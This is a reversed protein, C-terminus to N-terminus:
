RQPPDFCCRFGIHTNRTLRNISEQATCQLESEGSLYSGGFVVWDNGDTAMETVNGSLDFFDSGGHSLFCSSFDAGDGDVPGTPM